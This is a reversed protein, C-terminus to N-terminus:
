KKCVVKCKCFLWFQMLVTNRNDNKSSYSNEQQQQKQWRCNNTYPMVFDYVYFCICICVPLHLWSWCWPVFLGQWWVCSFACTNLSINWARNGIIYTEGAKLANAKGHERRCCPARWSRHHDLLFRKGRWPRQLIKDVLPMKFTLAQWPLYPFSSRFVGTGLGM